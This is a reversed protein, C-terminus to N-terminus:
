GIERSSCQDQLGGSISCNPPGSSPASWTSPTLLADDSDMRSLYRTDKKTEWPQPSTEGLDPRFFPVITPWTALPTPGHALEYSGEGYSSFDASRPRSRSPM